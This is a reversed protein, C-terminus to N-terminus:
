SPIINFKSQEFFSVTHNAKHRIITDAQELLFMGAGTDLILVYLSAPFRLLYLIFDGLYVTLFPSV